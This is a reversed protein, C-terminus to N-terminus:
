SQRKTEFATVPYVTVDDEIWEFVVCVFRGDVTEGFRMPRRSSKSIAESEYNAFVYEFEDPTLGHEVVHAVNGGAEYSWVFEFWAM